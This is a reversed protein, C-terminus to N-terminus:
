KFARKNTNFHDYFILRREKTFKTLGTTTKPKIFKYSRGVDYSGISPTENRPNYDIWACRSNYKNLTPAKKIITQNVVRPKLTKYNGNYDCSSPTIELPPNYDNEKNNKKSYKPSKGFIVNHKVRNGFPKITQAYGPGVMENSEIHFM